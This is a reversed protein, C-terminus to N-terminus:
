SPRPATITTREDAWTWYLCASAEIEDKSFWGERLVHQMVKQPQESYAIIALAKEARSCTVYLLRRTREIGTEKGVSENELDGKTKEKAGFLKEYSFMFGRSEADDIVVLVRAFELGKIGQHTDFPARRAVYDAYAGIQQFPTKLAKEWSGLIADPSEEDSIDFAVNDPTTNSRIFPVLSEPIEFLDTSAISQLVEIFPADPKKCIAAVDEIAKKAKALQQSQAAGAAKLADKRLLPSHERVIAATAYSDNQHTAKVLPWVLTAFLRLGPLSGDLLSTRLSESEYLPEFMPLFGMRRAAMHHELILTKVDGSDTLWAPDDTIRAMRERVQREAAIKDPTSSELIFLRVIGELANDAPRQAQADIPERIRNILDIIRRGSRYNILKSPTAWASPLDRGLDPKGDAYIRQMTDGFLGLCFRGRNEQDLRLFAEMLLRNTDQSEDVLLIPFRNILLGQMLPKQGLFDACIKIVEAHNLADVGRNEGNPNYVFRRISALRALRRLRRELKMERDAHVKTGSRGKSLAERLEAIDAQLSAKLWEKIDLNFGGILAWAFSHITSVEFLPDYALRRKIEDCAANTYTIVAVRKGSLRLSRGSAGRIFNLAEVLSRTKGTGAGAFLFFSTPKELDLCRQITIDADEVIANGVPSSSTGM